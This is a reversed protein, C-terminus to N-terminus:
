FAGCLFNLVDGATWNGAVGTTRVYNVVTVSTTTSASQQTMNTAPTTVDAVSCSWGNSATPMTIVGTSASGSAGVTVKFAATSSATISPSTAFGSSITPATASEYMVNAFRTSVSALNINNGATTGGITITQNNTGNGISVSSNSSTNLNVVAGQITMGTVGLIRGASYLSYLNTCVVGGSCTPAALYQTIANTITTSAGGTSTFNPAQLSYAADNAVTGSATTDNLTMATGNWVPSVFGWSAASYATGANFAVPGNLAVSGPTATNQGLTVASTTTGTGINTASNNSANINVPGLLNVATASANGIQV